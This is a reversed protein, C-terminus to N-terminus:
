RGAAGTPPGGSLTRRGTRLDHDIVRGHGTVLLRGPSRRAVTGHGRSVARSMVKIWGRAQGASLRHEGRRTYLVHRASYRPYLSSSNPRESRVLRLREGGFSARWTTTTPLPSTQAAALGPAALACGLVVSLRLM